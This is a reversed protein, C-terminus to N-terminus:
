RTAPTIAACPVKLGQLCLEIRQRGVLNLIRPQLKVPLFAERDRFFIRTRIGDTAGFKSIHGYSLQISRMGVFCTSPPELGESRALYLAAM